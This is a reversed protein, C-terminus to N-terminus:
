TVESASTDDVTWTALACLVRGKWGQLVWRHDEYVMFHTHYKNKVEDKLSLVIDCDLPLQRLGARQNQAQWERYNQPREVRDTGECAIMNIASWAFSDREVLMRKDNGRPIATDMMDFLATFYYLAQRFRTMFLAASYSGNVVAHVFVSPKMKRITNLVMDRPNVKDGTLNDDLMTRFQFLSHVILVEDPDFHLDEAQVSELKAAVAHFKFPVGFKSACASLRHGAEKILEAPCFGPQPNNITTFRVEPPGGERDALRQILEPWKYGTIIGYHVIHLKRRGAVANYITYNSFLSAVNVFCCTAMQLHYAQVLELTSTHKGVLSRYLESGTGALRAELGQAFYYAVRQRADGRPSSYRKIRELVEIASHRDNRSVSEACRILLTELDTVTTETQRAGGRGRWRIRKQTANKEKDLTILVDQMEGPYKDYGNLILRDLMKLATDEEESDTRSRGRGRGAETEDDMDFRKKYGRGDLVGNDRPLLMSADVMGKFFAKSTSSNEGPFLTSNNNNNDRSPLLATDLAGGPASTINAASLIQAFNQEAQLLKPHDPYQDPFTDVTDDEMLM